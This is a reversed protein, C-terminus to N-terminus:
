ELSKPKEFSNKKAANEHVWKLLTIFTKIPDIGNLLLKETLKKEWQSEKFPATSHVVPFSILLQLSMMTCM